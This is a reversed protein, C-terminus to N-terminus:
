EGHNLVDVCIFKNVFFIEDYVVDYHLPLNSLSCVGARQYPLIESSRSATTGLHVWLAM